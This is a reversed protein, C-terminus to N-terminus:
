RGEYGTLTLTGVGTVPRGGALGEATVMGSWLPAVFDQVQDDSLPAVSLALGDGALRWAVPYPAGNRDPRWIRSPEM